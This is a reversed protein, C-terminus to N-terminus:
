SVARASAVGSEETDNTATALEDDDLSAQARDLRLFLLIGAALVSGMAMAFAVGALGIGAEFLIGALIPALVSGGRGVGIAFGTGFARVHTPFAHAFIAYMGVVGANTCFGAIAAFASLAQLNDPSRGFISVTIGSLVLIALTLSKVNYRLTLLGFLAGGIAGGVNAWVLVGAASSAAFGMDAVIKPVWKLIFYFTTIHFFYAATVIVTTVLLSGTFIDGISRRRVGESVFPLKSVAQHGFRRLTSNVRALAAAPQKQVLWHVSEPMCFYVIPIFILTTAAGFYFVSRWDFTGLLQASVSGGIVAGIPYGITVLSVCLHRRQDNSFEAAVATIAALVGGIGIGTVVRWLSLDVLGRVTTVMFMGISMVALCILVVPRRGVRDALAGLLISGVCMGILEMSLVIGLTARDISWEAAIGPAAFSISLVDFGDLAYLGVAAAIVLIQARSM